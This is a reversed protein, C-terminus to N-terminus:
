FNLKITKINSSTSFLALWDARNMWTSITRNNIKLHELYWMNEIKTNTKRTHKWLILPHGTYTQFKNQNDIQYQKIKILILCIIWRFSQKMKIKLELYRYNIILKRVELNLRM